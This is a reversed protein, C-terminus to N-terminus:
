SLALLLVAEGNVLAHLIFPAYLSQTKEYVLALVVGIFFLQPFQDASLHLAAFIAGSVVAAAIVGMRRRLAGYFFFRFVVEELFPVIVAAGIALVAFEAGQRKLMEQLADQFAFSQGLLMRVVVTLALAVLVLPKALLFGLVGTKVGRRLDRASGLRAARIPALGQRKALVALLVILVITSARGVLFLQLFSAGFHHATLEPVYTFFVAFGLVLGPALPMFVRHDDCAVAVESARRSAALAIWLALGPVLLAFAMLGATQQDPVVDGPGRAPMWAEANAAAYALIVVAEITVLVVALAIVRLRQSSMLTM